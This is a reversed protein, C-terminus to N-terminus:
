KMDWSLGVSSPFAVTRWTSPSIQRVTKGDLIEKTFGFDAVRYFIERTGTSIVYHPENALAEIRDLRWVFTGSGSPTEYRYAWCRYRRDDGTTSPAKRVGRAHM